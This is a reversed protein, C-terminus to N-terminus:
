LLWFFLLLFSIVLLLMGLFGLPWRLSGVPPEGTLAGPPKPPWSPLPLEVNGATSNDEGNTSPMELSGRTESSPIGDLSAHANTNAQRLLSARRGADSSGKTDVATAEALDARVRITFPHDAPSLNSECDALLEKLTAAARASQNGTVYARALNRRSTLTDRHTPGLVRTYDAVNLELLEVAKGINEGALYVGALNDRARLTDPHDLGAVHEYAAVVQKLTNAARDFDRAEFYSGALNNRFLLTSPSSAGLVEEALAVTRELAASAQAWDGSARRANALNSEATLTNVDNDGYVRRTETLAQDYEKIARPLNELELYAGALAARASPVHPHDAGLQEITQALGLELMPLAHQLDGGARYASALQSTIALTDPHNGGLTIEAHKRAKSLHDIAASTLGANSLSEGLRQVLQHAGRESEWMAEPAAAILANANARLAESLPRDSETDPWIHLLSGAAATGVLGCLYDYPIRERIARGTLSHMRVARPDNVDPNHSILSLRNLARLGKRALRGTVTERETAAALFGCIFDNTFAAEPAGSPDFTSALEALPSALGPPDIRDATEIAISWTTAVTRAYGDADASAPFLDDLRAAREAFWERYQECTIAEDAIVAAAQALGLPLLGLDGALEPAGNLTGPHPASALRDVLYSFAEEQSFVNVDLVRRGSGSLSADRRRTTAIVTGGEGPPWLGAVDAPDWLDDLVVLWSRPCAGLFELFLRALRDSGEDADALDLRIAADAYTGLISARTGAAAWVRLEASSSRFVHAAQQSKGVGGGGALVTTAQSRVAGELARRARFASALLPPAGVTIPWAMQRRPLVVTNGDGVAGVTGGKITVNYKPSGPPDGEDSSM